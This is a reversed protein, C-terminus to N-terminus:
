SVNLSDSPHQHVMGAQLRLTIGPTVRRRNRMAVAEMAARTTRCPRSSQAARYTNGGYGVQSQWQDPMGRTRPRWQPLKLERFISSTSTKALPVNTSYQVRLRANIAREIKRDSRAIGTGTDHAFHAQRRARETGHRAGRERPIPHRLRYPASPAEACLAALLRAQRFAAQAVYCGVLRYTFRAIQTPQRYPHRLRVDHNLGEVCEARVRIAATERTTHPAGCRGSRPVPSGPRSWRRPIKCLDLSTKLRVPRPLHRASGPITQSVPPSPAAAVHLAPPPRAHRRWPIGRRQRPHRALQCRSAAQDHCSCRAPRQDSRSPRPPAGASSVIARRSPTLLAARM